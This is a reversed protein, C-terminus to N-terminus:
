DDIGRRNFCDRYQQRYNKQNMQYSLYRLLSRDDKTWYSRRVKGEGILREARERAGPDSVYTRIVSLPIMTWLMEDELTAIDIPHSEGIRM